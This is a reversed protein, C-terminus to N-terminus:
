LLQCLLQFSSFFSSCKCEQNGLLVELLFGRAPSLSNTAAKEASRLRVIDAYCCFVAISPCSPVLHHQTIFCPKYEPGPHCNYHLNELKLLSSGDLESLPQHHTLTYFESTNTDSCSRSCLWSLHLVLCFM